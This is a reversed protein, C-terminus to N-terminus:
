DPQRDKKIDWRIRENGMRYLLYNKEYKINLWGKIDFQTIVPRM